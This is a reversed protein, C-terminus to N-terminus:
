KRRFLCRFSTIGDVQKVIIIPYIVRFKNRSFQETWWKAPYISVHSKDIGNDIIPVRVYIYKSCIRCTEKIVLKLSNIDIHELIDDAVILEFERNSWRSLNCIDGLILYKKYEEDIDTNEIAWKSIDIGYANIGVERLAQVLYGRACGLVLANKVKLKMFDESVRTQEFPLWISKSYSGFKSGYASKTGKTFYEEDYYDPNVGM